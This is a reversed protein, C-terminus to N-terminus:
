AVGELEGIGVLDVSDGAVVEGLAWAGEPLADLVAEVDGRGVVLIMGVGMNFVRYMENAEVSGARALVRFVNPVTWSRCDIRAGLGPPLVRPLNGAIGGGTVHALAKLRAPEDDILRGVPDLYSRHVRLLVDAVSAGDEGPFADGVDLRMREFVIARALTFGNTHLGSSPLAILRDGRAPGPSTSGSRALAQDPAVPAAGPDNAAAVAGDAGANGLLRGREVVGVVFGALDYEGAGYFDPMQATEGGLLVCRNERCARAVGAVVQAVVGEEMDGTALYDLFFLPRAGQVLVDNVCHNVLDQGVTDHRGAAFAVKLKTGVGDASAVLVPEDLGAPLAYAGGFAGMASLTNADRTDSLLRGLASKARDAADLDVGAADYTLPPNLSAARAEVEDGDLGRFRDVSFAEVACSGMVAGYAMAQKWDDRRWSQDPAPNQPAGPSAQEQRSPAHRRRLERDLHGLFGGAFADGAGTPDVVASAPHAPCSFTWGDAFLVAGRAGRKVVVFAPGRDRIWAAARSLDAEGALQRAEEDNVLLVDLRAALALVADRSREIWYNMTDAAVLRPSAIQDLVGLQLVPDINGLFVVESDRYADPVVPDFAGFVGLRTELTERRAFDDSYRGAWFFSSGEARELGEFNVGAEELFRLQDLPYDDGVVAVVRVDTFFSASAGFFVASGGVVGDVRAQPTEVADLAVSGVVLLSM